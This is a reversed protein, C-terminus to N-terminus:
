NPSIYVTVPPAPARARADALAKSSCPSFPKANNSRWTPRSLPATCMSAKRCANGLVLMMAMAQSTVLSLSTCFATCLALSVKPGNFIRHQKAPSGSQTEASSVVKSCHRLTVSTFRVPDHSAACATPLYAMAEVGNYEGGPHISRPAPM